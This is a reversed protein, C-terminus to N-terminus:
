SFLRDVMSPVIKVNWFHWLLLRTFIVLWLNIGIFVSLKSYQVLSILSFHDVEVLLEIHDVVSWRRRARYSTYVTSTIPDARSPRVLFVGM